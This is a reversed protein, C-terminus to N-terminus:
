IVIRCELRKKYSLSVGTVPKLIGGVGGGVGALGFGYNKHTHFTHCYKQCIDACVSQAAKQSLYTVTSESLHRCVCKTFSKRFSTHSYKQCIDACGFKTCSKKKKQFIHSLVVSLHRCMCVCVRVCVCACVCVCVCVCVSKTCSKKKQFIHSLVVSLHRCVCQTCSKKGRFSTHCYRQCIDACM